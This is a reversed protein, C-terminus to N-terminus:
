VGAVPLTFASAASQAYPIAAAVAGKVTWGVQTKSPSGHL